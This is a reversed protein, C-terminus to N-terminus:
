GVEGLKAFDVHSTILGDSKEMDCTTSTASAKSGPDCALVLVDVEVEEAASM